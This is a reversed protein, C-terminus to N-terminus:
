ESLGAAELAETHSLFDRSCLIKGARFTILQGVEERFEIGTTRNLVDLHGLVLVSEGGIGIALADIRLGAALELDGNGDVGCRGWGVRRQGLNDAALARFSLM